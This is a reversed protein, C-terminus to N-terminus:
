AKNGVQDTLSKAPRIGLAIWLIWFRRYAVPLEFPTSADPASSYLFRYVFSDSASIDLAKSEPLWVLDSFLSVGREIGKFPSALFTVNLVGFREISEECSVSIECVDRVAKVIVRDRCFRKGDHFDDADNNAVCDSELSLKAKSPL